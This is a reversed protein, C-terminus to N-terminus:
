LGYTGDPASALKEELTAFFLDELPVGNERAKVVDCFIPTFREAGEGNLHHADAFADADMRIGEADRYLTFDWFELGNEDAYDQVASLYSQYNATNDCFANPVPATVLVLRIGNDSCYKTICELYELGFASMPAEPNVDLIAGYGYPTVGYTYVFGNGRYEEEGPYTVYKYSSIDYGDTLKAVWLEPIEDPSAITHRAPFILDAFAAPGGMEWLYQYRNLSLPPLYDTLLYCALPVDSSAQQNYGTYFMELYVTDLDNHQAAEQLLYYSGDPLQQSTGANFSHTGLEEDLIAPDFSRYCHSAGLFLTDIEGSQEYLEGLMVRSYSHVDDVLLFNLAMCLLVTIAAFAVAKALRPGRRAPQANPKM